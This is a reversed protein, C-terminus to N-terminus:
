RAGISACCLSQVTHCDQDVCAPLTPMSQESVCYEPLHMWGQNIEEHQAYSTDSVFHNYLRTDIKWPFSRSDCSLVYFLPLNQVLRTWLYRYWSRVNIATGSM